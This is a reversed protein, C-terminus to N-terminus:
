FTTLLFYVQQSSLMLNWCLLIQQLYRNGVCALCRDDQVHVVHLFAVYCPGCSVEIILIHISQRCLTQQESHNWCWLMKNPDGSIVSWAFLKKVTGLCQGPKSVYSGAANWLFSSALVEKWVQCLKCRSFLSPEAIPVAPHDSSRQFTSLSLFCVHANTPNKPKPTTCCICERDSLVLCALQSPKPQLLNWLNWELVGADCIVIHRSVKTWMCSSRWSAQWAFYQMCVGFCALHFFNFLETINVSNLCHSKITRKKWVIKSYKSWIVKSSVSSSIGQVPSEPIEELIMLWPSITIEWCMFTVFLLCAFSPGMRLWGVSTFWNPWAAYSCSM